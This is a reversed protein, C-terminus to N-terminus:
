AVGRMISNVRKIHYDAGQPNKPSDLLVLASTAHDLVALANYNCETIIEINEGEMNEIDYKNFPAEKKIVITKIYSM